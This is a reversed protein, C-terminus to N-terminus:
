SAWGWDMEWSLQEPACWALRGSNLERMLVEGGNAQYLVLEAVAGAPTRAWSGPKPLDGTPPTTTFAREGLVALTVGRMRAARPDPECTGCHWAGAPDQWYYPDHGEPCRGEPRQLLVMLDAKRQRLLPVLRQMDAPPLDVGLTGNPNPTLYGGARRVEALLAVASPIIAPDTM